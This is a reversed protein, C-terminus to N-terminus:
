EYRKVKTTQATRRNPSAIEHLNGLMNYNYCPIRSHNNKIRVIAARLPSSALTSAAKMMLQSRHEGPLPSCVSNWTAKYADVTNLATVTSKLSEENM